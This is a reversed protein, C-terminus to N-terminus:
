ASHASADAQKTRNWTVSAVAAAAVLPKVVLERLKALSDIEGLEVGFCVANWKEEPGFYAYELIQNLCPEPTYCRRDEEAFFTPIWKATNETGPRRSTEAIFFWAEPRQPHVKWQGPDKEFYVFAAAFKFPGLGDGRASSSFLWSHHRKMVLHNTGLSYVSESTYDFGLQRLEEGFDRGLRNLDELVRKMTGYAQWLEATSDSMM